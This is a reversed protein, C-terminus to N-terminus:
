YFLDYNKLTKTGFIDIVQVKLTLSKSKDYPFPGAKFSIERSKPTRYSVWSTNFFEGQYDLDLAWYDILDTWNAINEKIKELIKDIYPIKYDLLEINFSTEQKQIDISFSPNKLTKIRIKEKEDKKFLEIPINIEQKQDELCYIRFSQSSKNYKKSWDFLDKSNHLDLMRKRTINVAHNTIDSGLWRRGLKEAVTLTTGSGCFFDAVLDNPNTSALIIRKVLREPKQTSFGQYESTNARIYPIDSWVDRPFIGDKEVYVKQSLKKGNHSGGRYYFVGKEDKKLAKKVRNSYEMYINPDDNFVYDNSKSYFLIIDYSRVYFRRTRVSAAPYSWIIENRFNQEGFIEDMLIKIYDGVHWDLHVYISGNKTLLENMLLLRKYMFNLYSDLGERWTDSYSKKRLWKSSSKSAKGEGIQIIYNFDGGTAFPPDFYILNVKHSFGELLSIMVSINDGLYLRNNWDETSQDTQELDVKVKDNILSSISENINFPILKENKLSKLIEKPDSKGEWNLKVM